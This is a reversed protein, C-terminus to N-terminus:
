NELLLNGHEDVRATWDPAIVITTDFQFILAPGRAEFGQPLDQREYCFTELPATANFWVLKQGCPVPANTPLVHKPLEPLVGSRLARVRLTVVELIQERHAYGYRKQHEDHFAEAASTLKEDELILPVTIEYSQGRYRLDLAYKLRANEGIFERARHALEVALKKLEGSSQLEDLPQLIAHAADHIVDALLMGLASLAGPYLPILIQNIGLTEALDCAHLPGAGGFPVLTFLRPDHGREVSVRRLAREMQANAVRIIGVAAAEISLNLKEAIGSVARRAAAENLTAAGGLFRAADLRGLVLNADSVTAEIGGKDYCAPGPIAGASQPGVRLAGGDDVFAISGGGAGVTHLNVAPLRLPLGAIHSESTFDVRGPCLSVDTSTGGMDFTIINPAKGLAQRAVHFTGVVGGAPGSLALHAAQGVAQEIGIVGGSSQMVALPANPLQAALSTLYRAVPPQVYANICTTAVREFERYEPLIDSSLTLFVSPAIARVIQAARQEHAPNM